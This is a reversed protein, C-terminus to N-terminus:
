AGLTVILGSFFPSIFIFGILFVLVPIKKPQKLFIATLIIGLWVTINLGISIISLSSM